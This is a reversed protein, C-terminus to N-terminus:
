HRGTEGRPQTNEKEEAANVPPTSLAALLAPSHVAASRFEFEVPDSTVNGPLAPAPSAQNSTALIFAQLMTQVPNNGTNQGPNVGNASYM